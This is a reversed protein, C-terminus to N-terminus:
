MWDKSYDNWEPNVSNVLEEKRKRNWKKIQKEREITELINFREEVYVLQHVNYRRTFNSKNSLHEAVRRRLDSTMGVYLVTHLKNTMMYIYSKQM